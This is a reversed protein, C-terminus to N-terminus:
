HGVLGLLSYVHTRTHLSSIRPCSGFTGISVAYRLGVTGSSFINYFISPFVLNSFRKKPCQKPGIAVGHRSSDDVGRLCLELADVVCVLFVLLM